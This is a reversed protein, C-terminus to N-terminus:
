SSRSAVTILKKLRVYFNRQLELYKKRNKRGIARLEREPLRALREIKEALDDPDVYYNTALYQKATRNYNVLCRPDSIFENMPSANTTVVVAGASMAEVLYHGFGETESLCLHIGYRNQLTRLDDEFLKYPILEVNAIDEQLLHIPAVLSLMPLFNKEWADLIAGSGKKWNKGPMHFCHYFDKPIDKKLCDISTFGLFFTKRGLAKFIREIEHTRCLILSVEELLAIEQSFWEPNPIFWNEKARVFMDKNLIEFFINIDAEPITEAQQSVAFSAAKCGLSKLADNLIGQDVELGSGNFVTIINIVKDKLAANINGVVVIM